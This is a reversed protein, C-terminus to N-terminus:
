RQHTPNGHSIIRNRETGTGDNQIEEIENKDNVVYTIDMHKPKEIYIIGNERFIVGYARFGALYEEVYRMSICLSIKLMYKMDKEDCPCCQFLKELCEKTHSYAIRNFAREYVHMHILAAKTRTEAEIQTMM